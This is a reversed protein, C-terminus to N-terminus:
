SRHRHSVPPSPTHREAARAWRREAADDVEDCSLRLFEEFAVTSRCRAQRPWNFEPTWTSVRCRRDKKLCRSVPQLAIKIRDRSREGEVGGLGTAM